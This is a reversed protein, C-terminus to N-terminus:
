DNLKEPEAALENHWDDLCVDKEHARTSYLGLGHARSCAACLRVERRESACTPCSSNEPPHTAISEQSMPRNASKPIDARSEQSTGLADTRTTPFPGSDSAGPNAATTSRGLNGEAAFSQIERLALDLKHLAVKFEELRKIATNFDVELHGQAWLSVVEQSQKLIDEIQEPNVPRGNLWTM